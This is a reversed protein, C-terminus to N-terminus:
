SVKSEDSSKIKWTIQNRLLVRPLYKPNSCMMRRAVYSNFPSTANTAVERGYQEMQSATNFYLNYHTFQTAWQKIERSNRKQPSFLLDKSGEPSMAVTGLLM